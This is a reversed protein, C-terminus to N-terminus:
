KDNQINKQIVQYYTPEFNHKQKKLKALTGINNKEFRLYEKSTTMIKFKGELQHLM